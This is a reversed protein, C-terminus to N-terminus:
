SLFRRSWSSKDPGSLWWTLSVESSSQKLGIYKVSLNVLRPTIHHHCFFIKNIVERQRTRAQYNKSVANCRGSVQPRQSLGSVPKGIYVEMWYRRRVLCCIWKLKNRLFEKREKGMKRRKTFLAARGPKHCM